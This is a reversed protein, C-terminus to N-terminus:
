HRALSVLVHQNYHALEAGEFFGSKNNEDPPFLAAEDGLYVGLKSLAACLSSTGSRIMGLVVIPHTDPFDANPM